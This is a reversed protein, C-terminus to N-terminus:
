GRRYYRRYRPVQTLALMLLFGVLFGLDYRPGINNLAYMRVGPLFLSLVLSIPSIAGHLLGSVFGPIAELNVLPGPSTTTTDVVVTQDDQVAPDLETGAPVNPSITPVVDVNVNGLPQGVLPLARGSLFFLLVIVVVAMLLINRTGRDMGTFEKELTCVMLIAQM